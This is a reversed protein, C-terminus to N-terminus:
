LCCVTFRGTYAYAPEFGARDVLEEIALIWWYRSFGRIEQALLGKATLEFGCYKRETVHM